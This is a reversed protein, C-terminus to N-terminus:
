RRAAALRESAELLDRAVIDPTKGERTLAELADRGGGTLVLVTACGARKGAIVDKASDGIMVSAALDIGLDRAARLIMGPSPKRDPHDVAYEGVCGEKLYPCHYFADIRAGRIDLHRRLREHLDRIEAETCIGRAVASQNTVVVVRPYRDSLRRIAEVAFPFVAVEEFRCIYGRDEILTGDRDLFVASEAM